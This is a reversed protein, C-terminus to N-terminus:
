AVGVIKLFEEDAAFDKLDNDYSTVNALARLMARYRGDRKVAERAANLVSRRADAALHPETELLRSYRQGFAAAMLYWYRPMEVAATVALTRGLAIADEYGDPQYLQAQIVDLTENVSVSSSSAVQVMRPDQTKEALREAANNVQESDKGVTQDGPNLKIEVELFLPTLAIRTYLYFFMFGSFLGFTLLFPSILPLAGATPLGHADTFVKAGRDVMAMLGDIYTKALALQSLAVGALMTTLKDSIEELNTNSAMLRGSRGALSSSVSVTKDQEHEASPLRAPGMTVVRPLSFLFGTLGGVCSGGMVLLCGIGIAAPLGQMQSMGLAVVVTIASLVGLGHLPALRNVVLPNAVGSARLFAVLFRKWFSFITAEM